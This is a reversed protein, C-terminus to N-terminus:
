GACVSLRSEDPVELGEPSSEPSIEQGNKAPLAFRTRLRLIAVALISAIEALREEVTLECDVDCEIM